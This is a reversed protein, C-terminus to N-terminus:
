RFGFCCCCFVRIQSRCVSSKWFGPVRVHDYILHRGRTFKAATGAPVLLPRDLGGPGVDSPIEKGGANAGDEELPSTLLLLLLRLFLLLDLSCSAIFGGFFESSSLIPIPSSSLTRTSSQQEREMLAWEGEEAEGNRRWDREWGEGEEMKAKGPDQDASSQIEPSRAEKPSVSTSEERKGERLLMPFSTAAKTLM